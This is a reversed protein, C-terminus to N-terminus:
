NDTKDAHAAARRQRATAPKARADADDANADDDADDATKIKSTESGAWRDALEDPVEFAGREGEGPIVQVQSQSGEGALELLARAVDGQDQGEPVYVRAM